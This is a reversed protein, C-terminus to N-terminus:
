NSLSVDMLDTIGDLWRLRQGGGRRRGGIGGLMLSKELSNVCIYPISKGNEGSKYIPKDTQVFTVTEESSLAVSRREFIKLTDGKVLLTVFAM